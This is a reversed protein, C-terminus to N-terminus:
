IHGMDEVRVEKGLLKKMEKGGEELNEQGLNTGSETDEGDEVEDDEMDGINDIVTGPTAFAMKLDENEQKYYDHPGTLHTEPSNNDEDASSDDYESADDSDFADHCGLIDKAHEEEDPFTSSRLQQNQVAEVDQLSAGIRAAGGGERPSSDNAARQLRQVRSRAGRTFRM